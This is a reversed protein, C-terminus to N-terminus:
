GSPEPLRRRPDGLGRQTALQEALTSAVTLGGDVVLNHGTVFRSMSSALFVFANAMDEAVGHDPWPQLSDFVSGDPSIHESLPTLTVGPSISNVRIRDAALAVAAVRTLHIVGAKATSYAVSTAGGLIGAASATNVISGGHGLERFIRVSHKVGLFPGRLLVAMAQDWDATDLESVPNVAMNSGANNFVVHLDGFTAVASRLLQEVDHEASVDIQQTAFRDTFGAADVVTETTRLGASSRDGVVVNAGLRLCQLAAAQGIGSAGGTIVVTQGELLASV